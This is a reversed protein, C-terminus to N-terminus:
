LIYKLKKKEFSQTSNLLSNKPSNTQNPLIVGNSFMTNGPYNNNAYNNNM